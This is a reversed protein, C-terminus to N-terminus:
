RRLLYVDIGKAKPFHQHSATPFSRRLRPLVPETFWHSRILWVRDHRELTEIAKRWAPGREDNVEATLLLHPVPRRAYYDYSGKLYDPDFVIIDGRIYAGEVLAVVDRWQEKGFRPNFYYNHLSIGALSIVLVAALAHALLAPLSRRMALDHLHVAGSALLIYVFPSAAIVYRRDFMIVKFSAVFPVLLLTLIMVLCFTSAYRRSASAPVASVLYIGFGTAFALILHANSLLTEPLHQVAAEDFPVLTDGVLFSALAEPLKLLLYRRVQGSGVTGTTRLMKWLWPAFVIFILMQTFIWYRLRPRHARWNLVFLLNQAALIFVAHFHTHLAAVTTFGYAVWLGLCRSSVPRSLVAHLALTSSLCLFLLLAFARAEQAYYIHYTSIAMMAASITAIRSDYLRRALVYTLLVSAVSPWVSLCRIAAEATGFIKIWFHLLLYYLPPNTPESKLVNALPQSAFWVSATEDLWLSETGLHYLRLVLALLGLASLGIAPKLSARIAAPRPSQLDASLLTTPTRVNEPSPPRTQM